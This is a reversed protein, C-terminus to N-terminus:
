HFHKWKNNCLKVNASSMVLCAMALDPIVLLQGNFGRPYRCGYSSHDMGNPEKTNPCQERPWSHICLSFPLINFLHTLNVCPLSYSSWLPQFFGFSHIPQSFAFYTSFQLLFHLFSRHPYSNICSHSSLAGHHPVLLISGCHTLPLM